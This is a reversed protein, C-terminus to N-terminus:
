WGSDEDVEYSSVDIILSISDNREVIYEAEIWYGMESEVEFSCINSEEGSAKDDVVQLTHEGVSLKYSKYDDNPLEM